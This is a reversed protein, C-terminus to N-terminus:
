YVVLRTARVEQGATATVAYVGSPWDSVPLEIGNRLQSPTLIASFVSRGTADRAELLVSEGPRAENWYLRATARAPNPLVYLQANEGTPAEPRNVLHLNILSDTVCGFGNRVEVAFLNQDQYSLSARTGWLGDEIRYYLENDASEAEISITGSSENVPRIQINTIVPSPYIKFRLEEEYVAGDNELRVLLVSDSEVAFAYQPKDSLLAGTENLWSIEPRPFSAAAGISLKLSDGRCVEPRAGLIQLGDEKLLEELLFEMQDAAAVVDPFPGIHESAPFWGDQQALGTERLLHLMQAPNLVGFDSTKAYSQLLAAASSVIPTAGSTGGFSRTLWRDPDERNGINGYGLTYIAEGWGQVDVRSGFNSYDLRSRAASRGGWGPPASGAGVIIAPTRNEEMFPYHGANNTRYEFGDLDQAGNGAAQVVIFGNGCALNLANYNAVFWDIPVLGYQQGRDRDRNPGSIQAEIIIIDGQKMAAMAAAVAGPYDMSSAESVSSSFYAKAGHSAGTVGWDNNLALVQGMVATGHDNGFPPDDPYPRAMTIEPLDEHNANIGYEIDCVSVEQGIIGYDNWFRSANIGDPSDHIYGQQSTYDVPPPAAQPCPLACEVEDLANFYDLMEQTTANGTWKFWYETLPNPLRKGLNQQAHRWYEILRNEDIGYINYFMGEPASPLLQEVSVVSGLDTTEPLESFKVYVLGEEHLNADFPPALNKDLPKYAGQGSVQASFFALLISAFLFLIASNSM